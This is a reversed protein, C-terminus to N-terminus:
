MKIGKGTIWARGEPQVVPKPQNAILTAVQKQLEKNDKELTAIRSKLDAVDPRLRASSKRIPSIAVKAEHRSIRSIEERLVKAINPM